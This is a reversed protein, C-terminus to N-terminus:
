PENQTLIIDDVYIDPNAVLSGASSVYALMTTQTVTATQQVAIGALDFVYQNVRAYAYELLNEDIVLKVHNWVHSANYLNYTGALNTYTGGSNLYAIVQNLPDLRLQALWLQTGTSIHIGVQIWETQTTTLVAAEIGLRGVEPRPLTRYIRSIRSATSGATLHYSYSGSNSQANSLVAASGTGSLLTGWSIGGGEFDEIFFANGRRDWLNRSGLRVALEGMDQLTVGATPLRRSSWDPLGRMTLGDKITM